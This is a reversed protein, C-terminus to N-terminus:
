CDCRHSYCHFYHKVTIFFVFAASTTIQVKFAYGTKRNRCILAVHRVIGCFLEFYQKVM